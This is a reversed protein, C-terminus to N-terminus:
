RDGAEDDEDDLGGGEGERLRDGGAAADAHPAADLAGGHGLDAPVLVAGRQVGVRM